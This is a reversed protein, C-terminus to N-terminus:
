QKERLGLLGDVRLSFGDSGCKWCMYLKRDDDSCRTLCFKKSEYSEGMYRNLAESVEVISHVESALFVCWTM